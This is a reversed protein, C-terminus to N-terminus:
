GCTARAARWPSGTPAPCWAAVRIRRRGWRALTDADVPIRVTAAEGPAATAPAYGVLRLPETRGLLEGSAPELYVQVIERGPRSGTNAVDATM